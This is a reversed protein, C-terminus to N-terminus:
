VSPQFISVKQKTVYHTAIKVKGSSGEGITAGLKWQGVFKRGHRPDTKHDVAIAPPPTPKRTRPQLVRVSHVPPEVAVTKSEREPDVVTATSESMKRTEMSARRFAPVLENDSLGFADRMEDSLDRSPGRPAAESPSTSVASGNSSMKSSYPLEPTYTDLTLSAM